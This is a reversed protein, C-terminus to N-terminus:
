KKDRMMKRLVMVVFNNFTMDLEHAMMFLNFLDDTPLSIKVKVMKSKSKKKM